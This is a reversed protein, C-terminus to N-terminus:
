QSDDQSDVAPPTESPIRECIRAFVENMTGMGDIRLLRDSQSYYEVLPATQEKYIRLREKITNPTDDSRGNTEARALLRRQLEGEDAVLLVVSSVGRQRELLFRDLAKAQPITRPFGDLLFRNADPQQLRDCVISIMLDDGVLEGRELVAAVQQGIESDARVAARLIDGTSIHAAGIREALRVGQTGKGVGPPGLFVIGM